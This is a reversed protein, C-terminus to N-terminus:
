DVLRAMRAVQREIRAYLPELESRGASRRRLIEITTGVAALPTRLEHGLMALFEDKQRDAELLAEAKQRLAEQAERAEQYLRANDIAIAARGALDEALKLDNPGYHRGPTTSVFTIAALIQGRARLPVVMGSRMELE